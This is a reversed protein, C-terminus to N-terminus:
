FELIKEFAIRKAGAVLIFGCHRFQNKNLVRQMALNNEHTVVRISKIGKEHCMSEVNKIVESALGKGKCTQDVALRQIVAYEGNWLWSGEYITEYNMEGDFSICATAVVKNNDLLVNAYGKEIDGKIIDPNPYQNQWRDIQNEKFYTQAQGIIEMISNFDQETAKRFIMM